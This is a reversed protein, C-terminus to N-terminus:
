YGAPIAERINFQFPATSLGSGPDTVPPYGSGMSTPFVEGAIDEFSSLPFNQLIPRLGPVAKIIAINSLRLNYNPDVAYNHVDEERTAAIVERILEQMDYPMLKRIPGSYNILRDMDESNEPDLPTRDGIQPSGTFYWSLYNNAKQEDTLDLNQTNGLIGINSDRFDTTIDYIVTRYCVATYGDGRQDEPPPPECYTLLFTEGAANTVTESSGQGYPDLEEMNSFTISSGCAYTNYKKEETLPAEPISQPILPDCPNAPYPRLPHFEPETTTDCPYTNIRFGQEVPRQTGGPTIVGGASCSVGPDILFPISPELEVVGPIEASCGYVFYTTHSPKPTEGSTVIGMPPVMGDSWAFWIVNEVQSAHYNRVHQYFCTLYEAQLSQNTTNLGIETIWLPKGGASSYGNISPSLPGTGGGEPINCTPSPQKGYPHIAVKDVNNWGSGMASRLEGIWSPQGSASSGSVVIASSNASKIAAAAPGMIDAFQAPTMNGGLWIDPENWIQYAVNSGFSGYESALIGARESFADVNNRADPYSQYDIILLVKTGNSVYNQIVGRYNEISEFLRSGNTNEITCDKFEVRVWQTGSISQPSPYGDPNTPDINLGCVQANAVMGLKDAFAFVCFGSAILVLLGSVLKKTIM